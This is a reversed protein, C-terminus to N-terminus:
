KEKFEDQECSMKNYEYNQKATPRMQVARWVCDGCVFM